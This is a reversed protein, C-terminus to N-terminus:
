APLIAEAISATVRGWDSFSEAILREGQAVIGARLATNELAMAIMDAIESRSAEAVFATERDRLLWETASNRTAVVAAGCAMMELPIYSPHRTAMLCLGIDCTRYLDATAAYRMFGVNRACGRLGHDAPDWGAGACVIDVREFYRAKVDRLAAAALEFCNRPHGPRAYCFVRFPDGPPRAPRGAHFIAPDVAPTFHEATGGLSRYADALPETNCIAHYGFRYSARALESTSGAPYFEPEWDQILYVKRRVDRLFLVPLSTMWLTAVATDLPGLEPVEDIRDLMMMDCDRALDPFAEGIRSRITAEDVAGIVVFVQRVGRSVRLHEATRLITMVGGGHPSDFAPVFWAVRGVAPRNANERCAAVSSAIDDSTFDFYHVLTEAEAAYDHPPPRTLPPPVPM